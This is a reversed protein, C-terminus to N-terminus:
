RVLEPGVGVLIIDVVSCPYHYGLEMKTGIVIHSPQTCPSSLSAKPILMSFHIVVPLDIAAANLSTTSQESQCSIAMHTGIVAAWFVGSSPMRIIEWHLKCVALAVLISVLSMDLKSVM